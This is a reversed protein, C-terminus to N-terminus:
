LKHPEPGPTSQWAAIAKIAPGPGRSDRMMLAMRAIRQQQYNRISERNPGFPPIPRRPLPLSSGMRRESGILGSLRQVHAFFDAQAAPTEHAERAVAALTLYAERAYVVQDWSGRQNPGAFGGDVFFIGDLTLKEPEGTDRSRGSGMGMFGSSSLEDAAPARVDTNDGYKGGDATLLRKSGAFITNWYADFKKMRDNLFAFPLLVRSGSSVSGTTIRGNQGRFSWIYAMSAIAVPARNLLIASRATDHEAVRSLADNGIPPSGKTRAQLRREIDALLEFYTESSPPILVVGYRALDECVLAVLLNFWL